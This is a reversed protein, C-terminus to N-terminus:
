VPSDKVDNEGRDLDRLLKFNTVASWLIPFNWNCRFYVPTKKFDLSLVQTVKRESVMTNFYLSFFLFKIKKKHLEKIVGSKVVARAPWTRPFFLLM